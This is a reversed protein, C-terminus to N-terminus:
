PQRPRGPKKRTAGRGLSAPRAPNARSVGPGAIRARPDGTSLQRSVQLEAMAQRERESIRYIGSGDLRGAYDEFALNQIALNGIASRFADPVARFTRGPQQRLDILLLPRDASAFTVDDAVALVPYRSGAPVLAMLEPVSLDRHGPDALVTVWDGGIEDLLAQWAQDDTFDTRLFPSFDSEPLWATTM